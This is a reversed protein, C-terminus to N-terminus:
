IKGFRKMPKPPPAKITLFGDSSLESTVDNGHYGLPLGYRRTIQRCIFGRNGPYEEHKAEVTVTSDTTKVTVESPRFQHVDMVVQFGDKDTTVTSAVERDLRRELERAKQEFERIERELSWPLNRPYWGLGLDDRWPHYSRRWYPLVDSSNYRWLDDDYKKWPALAM